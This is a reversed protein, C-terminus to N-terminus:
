NLDSTDTCAPEDCPCKWYYVFDSGNELDIEAGKVFMLLLWIQSAMVTLFIAWGLRSKGLLFQYVSDDGIVDLAYKEDRDILSPRRAASRTPNRNTQYKDYFLLIGVISCSAGIICGFFIWAFQM